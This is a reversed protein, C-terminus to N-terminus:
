SSGSSVHRCVCLNGRDSEPETSDDVSCIGVVGSKAIQVPVIRQSDLQFGAPAAVFPVITASFDKRGSLLLFPVSM